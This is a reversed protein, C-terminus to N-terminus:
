SSRETQVPIDFKMRSANVESDSPRLKLNETCVASDTLLYLSYKTNITNHCINYFTKRVRVFNANIYDPNKSLKINTYPGAVYFRFETNWWHSWDWFAFLIVPWYDFIYTLFPFPFFVHIFASCTTYCNSSSRVTEHLISHNIHHM